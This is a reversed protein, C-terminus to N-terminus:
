LGSTALSSNVLLQVLGTNSNWANYILSGSTVTGLNTWSGDAVTLSDGANGTVVLQHRAEIAAFSYSGNGFGLSSASASNIGNYGTVDQVDKIALKLNNNGSGTLDICEISQVRSSRGLSGGQNAVMTLDFSLGTGDLTITDFGTGGDICSLQATNDGSGFPNQLATLMTQSIVVTDIGSGGYLVDAGGAGTLVDNGAGGVLTDASTTGTIVDNGSSGLQDVSTSVFSGSTSGFIVYCAGANANPDSSTAPDKQSSGVFLDSLGDGNVDGAGTVSCGSFDNACQGNIVFGGSGKIITNLDVSGTDTKGFVIYTRGADNLSDPDARSQGIILDALGDGNIDGASSLAFNVGQGGTLSEGYVIFGGSGGTVNSLEVTTSNRKGFVVWFQAETNYGVLLDALGDGNVDGAGAVVAGNLYTQVSGIVFGGSEATLSGLNITNTSTRGFVVYSVGSNARSDKFNGNTAGILLDALGDGNVDGIGAVNAGANDNTQAGNIMLGGQGQAVASLDVPSGSSKGFVVFSKGPLTNAPRQLTGVILDAVGDGNFDGASALSYGSQQTNAQGNIVFGGSGAVITSLFVPAISSKGFIVFSRGADTGAPATDSSYAGVVLDALGDANLDGAMSVQYLIEGPLAYIGFGGGNGYDISSVDISQNTTKGFVVYSFGSGYPSGIKPSGVLLDDLGDGNIDGFGSIRTGINEFFRQDTIVFGGCGAAISSLYLPPATTNITTTFSASALSANGASDVAKATIVYTTNNVLTGTPVSAFTNAIDSSTLTYASGLASTSNYLQITDGALANTGSLSVRVTLNTDDTSGGSTLPGTISGVDDTVSTITPANPATTDITTIFSASASSIMGLSDIVKANITYSSGDVLTGTSVVAFTNVIDNATITYAAGLTSSSNYLQITDGALANTAVLSVYVDLNTDDTLGGSTLAGTISGVNDTISTISPVGPPSTSISTSLASNVLLQSVGSLSNFLRFTQSAHLVTGILQWTGDKVTLNDGLNGTVVLQHHREGSSFSYSGNTWGLSAATSSNILNFGTLDWCDALSLLLSNDGSGTIDISELSSLRSSNNTNSSGQNAIVSLDLSLGAGELSLTDFGTGGDIRSLQNTNGDSGLVNQLATIMSSNIILLDNGSGGLLVDAGGGGTITDEGLGGVLTEAASTGAISDNASSGLQDVANVSFAGNTSGFIVYSRGAMWGAPTLSNRQGGVILDALGDGNVDGAASLTGSYDYNCQGNIVFGGSGLAIASLDIASSGSKGYVVYTRGTALGNPFTIAGVLLDGLGDGNLDGASAVTIGSNDYACEGNIMFGGSGSAVGSLNVASSSSKGFVVYSRGAASGAVPSAFPAGIILDALGDGNVDGASSVFYGSSAYGSSQTQGNIVYGGRGSAIDALSIAATTTKGFVVYSHGESYNPAGVILDALGDGNVDGASAVSIGSYDYYNQGKIVFGGCGAVVSSLDVSTTTSKGFLVYSSGAYPQAGAPTNNSAGIIVDAFGDGNVDGACAVSSGSLDNSCQGNVVFGGSGAAVASLNIPSTTSKGFVVYSRGANTAAAPSAYRAGIILDALGDGNLDGASAVSYGSNDGASQGNIVFGGSGAAIASLDVPTSSGKGFVLYTRGSDTGASSDSGCAGVILDNLGDGNLDGASAVSLGSYDIAGQGNIVFGGVGLAITSLNIQRAVALTGPPNMAISPLLNGAVDQMTAGNTSLSLIQLDSSTDNVGVTYSFVLTSTGSGSVYSATGGSDLYLLPTGGSITVPESLSLQLTVQAGTAVTGTGNSIGTASALVSLVYPATTDLSYLSSGTSNGTNGALDTVQFAITNTGSLTAGDWRISTGTAKSTIDSWHLGGDVSGCLIDGSALPASLSASITQAATKTIRDTSSTGTDASFSVGSVTLVPATTDLVYSSTGTRMGTNGALDTVQFVINSSGALIVNDWQISQLSVKNTINIWTTGGDVSGSLIDGTALNGSLTGYITQSVTNTILDNSNSGTDVSLSVGSVTVTPAAQDLVYSSWGTTNGTNGALDSVKFVISSNSSSGSLSAGNWTIATGSAKLTINTWSVGGDVSGYLIDGSTLNASLTAGITQAATNTIHDTAYTGTDVSLSVGSVTTTPAILDLVYNSIGTNSGTNGALDTVKFLISSSGALTVGDWLISQNVVKDTIELWSTGADVSGYLSDGATLGASLTASITQEAVNTILDSSSTGSDSSLSVGGVTLSLSTTDLVYSSNGTSNGTNGALDVVKFVITNSGSLIAGDWSIATGNVRDTIQTWSNGNDVSGYLQDGYSLGASLSAVITQAATNTMLDSDSSGTDNSLGVGSVTLTPAVTDLVYSSTGTQAGTNGALDKVQFVISNSGSLTVGTWNIATGSAKLTIDAWTQGGDVSGYLIDGSSLAANLSAGITQAATNTIRDLASTGTDASLSVGSVTLLPATTDLVYVSSGTLSGTNGALDTLKFVISNSGSLTVGDWRIATASVKNTINIWTTGGDVSGFLIDGTALNGSLTGYITQSATNTILDNSNSGTDVSLSVGTVTVTPAAQDLVYSSWGTTNGTNGALDTVKFVLSNQGLLTVGDWTIATGSAKLTINTWSVGGDVSGYLIDGSTLNASLTAGITQAATNTIHDTAYTGTDVSLSVGSVTTTPAILDLVYNSIGTNSGTNGALDTVKFLISSSGALTVGDWLISQNVVKDTIELWSTGADVSGYLSDGATLGASLTASITQEAVNTILDSSSTGSDSSLSVGGVTLSLSTTDLVYSSNGTSNGTNGALDVVKFVITNSGSLIAGDWSIATGNVRDTIQTWSNGNDVSGYLQDGYSLGASLSAVITQAATNTMLDSDSSGTDNSLGVGSVTLTPAVTDLVYSSTGTQAGTNGALDKVQFVISNSGSLTVGTWNIATGSAKLTIDAWTQGGDVSGYLIDGSSLAANLSAGITQAATNTIRDLASTGTDASLSVGSVTLLPATTDLVYVRSGTLSGTNGALDTVKFVISNSGSLTVGDWRIATSSVKATINTWSSGGDVSGFLSEGSALAESLTASITQPATNTILDSASSGTDVSLSVNSVTQTPAVQDLVYSSWGSEGGSNGASDIVNFVISNQGLLTVGDWAIATASAKSTIDTWTTGADVSGYLRDLASLSGTLTGRITQSATNTVLDSSSSGTDVSLSMGSVSTTPASGLLVYSTSGIPVGTNGALDTIKFVISNSGSLIAGDWGISTGNVKDTINAWSSGGDVSGYLQDGASLAASLSASITQAAVSTILDNSSTGTDDSLSVGAVTLASPTTDLVYGTTGTPTGSNGALDAVKFSVSSSGYLTAGDWSIATGTVKDTIQTWSNGNDVSGYLQDGYSLGVSLSAVITQAATNTMLDSDSSGTDNSLGVGSVTLTPAVTDLVFSSTGTQAGMNGALDKVQFVISNSGSLTVGTWNIATGSAKATIDTLNQGGDVSGYLIDGSSLAASLSASITQVATNTIRDTGSTGTDASLQIGSVTLTPATVDLVYPSNGTLSGKNGALDIGQFVVSSSGALTAGTWRISTLSAKRTLNIWTVGGDLSGFLFEGPALAKSLTASITQSATTTILDSSSSGTDASLNVASVTFTPATQDLVYRGVRPTSGSNGAVDTEKFIIRDRGSIVVGNWTIQTGNVKNNITTWTAGGDISGELIDGPDLATNLTASITQPAVSTIRDLDFLGTDVSLSLASLTPTPASTDLVYSSIGTQSGTNGALDTMKFVISNSGSLIVGDWNISTGNAKDTINTWSFGGDLSGYLSDGASLPTSLTASITQVAVSTILDSSSTGTDNSLSVGGVTLAPAATDLVYSSRGTTTGTNGALDVVQFAITNSGSLTAGDWSIATGTVKDTIQIWSNGNDVSGYLQDGSSLDASLSAVITQAATFTMLDSNSSGTDNSLGVGSVTLIPAVTDLVFSSTGTQAGMNGALDKVQFVISNSESLTVGTWNIATGSAKATIDTLNQGGDVSGYLIDGSSLAASLSASITQVATNTIRDTDSTGTDASLQIGSVTLTPATVDLVYPSNGTLSGKNGALDIGQFVVSSSGALTAGTWRISTLSAKRTLNTWTVGGDLSGFLFEGPALAKSLTASITQSATTTILDSSSSGTDASLNVASVTFTPATQDLVYRGARPTSRSNGAVDTEKFIIRDRGSIVVGNWIIQTGNVKNNITTWTAGGDISGELIDGPELATNLTASITQPAVSTIRDLDFLGTDISLSLASLTPTPAYTDLVYSSNGTQSGTNGALDTMKFVISNSGSLIVGDWNISTGNAKDTINTWSFGGDLSGYLSDGASLPASLTASITQVAASTILDSSSTGTDNSLSVNGVTLTPATTDLVYSRVGTPSGTNGALDVVKFEISGSASLTQGGWQISTGIAKGTIDTWHIGGDLSGYLIDGVDLPASLTANITQTASNTILDSSSFGTDDSLWVSSVTLGPAVNDLLYPTDGSQLSSNVVSNVVKFLITNHGFRLVDTWTVVTGNVMGSINTWVVGGDLSGYLSDGVRLQASLNATITQVAVNTVLDISKSGADDSLSVNAVTPSPSLSESGGGKLWEQFALLYVALNTSQYSQTESSKALTEVKIIDIVSRNVVSSSIPLDLRMADVFKSRRLSRILLVDVPKRTLRNKSKDADGNKAKAKGAKLPKPQAPTAAKAKVSESKLGLGILQPQDKAPQQGAIKPLGKLALRSPAVPQIRVKDFGSPAQGLLLRGLGLSVFSFERGQRNFQPPSGLGSSVLWGGFGRELTNIISALIM